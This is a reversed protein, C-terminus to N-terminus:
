EGRTTVVMFSKDNLIIYKNTNRGKLPRGRSDFDRKPPYIIKM